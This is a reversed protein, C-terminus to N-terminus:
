VRAMQFVRAAVSSIAVPDSLRFSLSQRIRGSEDQPNAESLTVEDWHAAISNAVGGSVIGGGFQVLLRGTTSARKADELTTSFLPTISLSPNLSINEWATRANAGQTGDLPAATIGFDLTLDNTAYKTGNWWVPSLLGRIPTVAPAASVAPLSGKAERTKTDGQITLNLRTIDNPKETITAATVRGGLLTYDVDDQRYVFALNAGGDDDPTWYKIGYSIFDTTPTTDWNPAISYTGTGPDATIYRWQGFAASSHYAFILDQLSLTDADLVATGAASGAGFGDGTTNTRTGLIHLLIADLIDDTITSASTGDGALSANGWLPISATFQWGDPGPIPATAFNRGTMYNTEIVTKQDQLPGLEVTPLFTYGSGNASPDTAFTSEAAAWLARKKWRAM